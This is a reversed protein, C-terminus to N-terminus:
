DTNPHCNLTSRLEQEKKKRASAKTKALNLMTEFEQNMKEIANANNITEMLESEAAKKDINQEPRFEKVAEPTFFLQDVNSALKEDGEELGSRQLQLKAKFAEIRESSEKEPNLQLHHLLKYLRKRPQNCLILLDCGASLAKDIRQSLTGFAAGKMSLCDSIILNKFHLRQRLIEKLWIKSFGAPNAEDVATYTVHAPMIADLREEKILEVFPHLDKELDKKLAEYRPMSLHSDACFSGHGPFHKGVSPMGALHMGEIFARCLSIVVDPNKHFARDLSGIIASIGDIDLVPALSLDVGHSLLDEAMIQGYQRALGIGIEPNFDFVEGYLRAPPLTRFGQRQFRQILGGEHDTCIFIDPRLHHISHTLARLQEADEFNRSFLLVGAVSPHKVLPIEEELLTKGQLDIIFIGPM